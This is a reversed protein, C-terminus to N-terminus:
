GILVHCCTSCFRRLLPFESLRNRSYARRMEAWATSDVTSLWPRIRIGGCSLSFASRRRSTTMTPTNSLISIQFLSRQSDKQACSRSGSSYAPFSASSPIRTYTCLTPACHCPIHRDLATLEWDQQLLYYGDQSRPRATAVEIGGDSQSPM